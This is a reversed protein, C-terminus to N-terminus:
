GGYNNGSSAYKLTNGTSSATSSAGLTHAGGLSAAPNNSISNLNNTNESSFNESKTHKHLNTSKKIGATASAAVSSSNAGMAAANTSRYMAM